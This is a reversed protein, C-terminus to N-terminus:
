QFFFFSPPPALFYPYLAPLYHSLLRFLGKKAFLQFGGKGDRINHTNSNYHTSINLSLSEADLLSLLNCFRM